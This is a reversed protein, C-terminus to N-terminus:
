KREVRPFINILKQLIQKKKLSKHPLSWWFYFLKMLLNNVIYFNPFMRSYFYLTLFLKINSVEFLGLKIVVFIHDTFNEHTYKIVAVKRHM